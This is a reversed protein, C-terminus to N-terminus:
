TQGGTDLAVAKERKKKSKAWRIFTHQVWRRTEESPEAPTEQLGRPPSGYRESYKHWAWGPKYGRDAAISLLGSYFAQRDQLPVAEAATKGDWTLRKLDGAVHVKERRPYEYGCNPCTPRPNHVAHCKPCHRFAKEKQKAVTKRKKGDDLPPPGDDLFTNFPTWSRELNGAHDLLVCVKDPNEPDRRLGRGVEQVLEAFSKRLPRALIIVSVCEADFGRALAAVTILVMLSSGRDKFEQILATRTTDPTMYTYVAVRIGASEFQKRLAECHDTDACFAIGKQGAAYKLYNEVVDGVIPIARKSAEADTWEGGVTKAGDMNPASPAYVEFPALWGEKILSRTTKVNVLADYYKGMSKSFPTASLGITVCDRAAIRALVVKMMVHCEDVVILDVDKPWPRRALTQASALQILEKPRKRWHNAQIIGHDIGYDDLLASTQDILVNREVIFLARKDKLQVARMLFAAIVTKGVGTSACLVQNKIGRRINARLAEVGGDQHVYLRLEKAGSEVRVVAREDPVPEPAEAFLSNQM